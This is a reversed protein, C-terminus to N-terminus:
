YPAPAPILFILLSLFSLKFGIRTIFRPKKKYFRTWLAGNSWVNYVHWGEARFIAILESRVEKRIKVKQFAGCWAQELKANIAELTCCLLKERDENYSDQISEINRLPALSNSRYIGAKSVETREQGLAPPANPAIPPLTAIPPLLFLESYNRMISKTPLRPM